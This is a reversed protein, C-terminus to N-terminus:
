ARVAYRVNEISRFHRDQTWIEAKFELATALIVSDALPLGKEVSLSAASLAIPLTLEVVQAEQMAAITQLANAEGRQQLVRKFVELICSTPVILHGTDEIAPAYFDALDTGAFYELWGCFDVLNM